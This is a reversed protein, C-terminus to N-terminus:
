LRSVDLQDVSPMETTGDDVLVGDDVTQAVCASSPPLGTSDALNPRPDRRKVM